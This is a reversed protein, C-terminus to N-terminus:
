LSRVNALGHQALIATLNTKAVDDAFAADRFVVQSEGAPALTKHWEVIGLALPEAEKPNVEKDLCVLLVGGGISHVTKGAVVKTDIPVCLDLGLKLLLEYLIDGESRDLKLHDAAAFLSETLNQRDPDWTRINSSDLKLVRFGHDGVFLPSDSKIKKGAQRLREKTLEAISRPKQLKDCYDAAAKQENNGPDLPEPLQVLIFRRSSHDESNQLMTGVATTGSGAFFDLVIDEDSTAARVLYKMLGSPKPYSMVDAQFTERMEVTADENTPVGNIRYSLLNATKKLEGSRNVYNPRFPVKSIVIEDKASVFEDLKAQSYRWEGELRFDTANRGQSIVVDDLLVTKINDESMDQAKILQDGCRFHVSGAPFRLVGVSNGANNFPYKKGDEVAGAAFPPSLSRNKSYAVIYDTVSGMNHDLFSPKKKKEWVFMGCYNEGGFLEDCIERLNHLEEEGISVFLVGGPTLLNRVLKLRPYMMNLWDTHFRGSAETNSTIRRGEGDVQGTLRMYNGISDRFDDPYVFDNGTNYPPDIYVLKVKGSYSKQLLKLVELNDGEIVLNQTTDWNVSEDPCPRLTGMSPTLGIQRAQRKGHWNLGYKENREEVAGSLLQKLVDFDIKGETFAEPFFAKLHAINDVVVDASRAEQDAATIPKMTNTM